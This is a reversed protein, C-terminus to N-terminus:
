RPGYVAATYLMVGIGEAVLALVVAAALLAKQWPEWDFVLRM